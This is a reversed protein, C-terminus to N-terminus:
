KSILQGVCYVRRWTLLQADRFETSGDSVALPSALRPRGCVLALWALLPSEVV